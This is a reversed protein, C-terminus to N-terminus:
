FSKDHNLNYYETISKIQNIESETLQYEINYDKIKLALSDAIDYILKLRNTIVEGSKQILNGDIEDLENQATEKDKTDPYRINRLAQILERIKAYDNISGGNNWENLAFESNYEGNINMAEAIAGSYLVQIRRELYKQVEEINTVSHTWPELIAHASHGNQQFKASIGNTKFLLERAVIYHGAEHRCVRNIRELDINRIQM